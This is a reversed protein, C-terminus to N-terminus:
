LVRGFSQLMLGVYLFGKQFQETGFSENPAHICDEEMGFGVLLPEANSAEALAPIIPVSAGEWMFVTEKSLIQDLVKKAKQIVPSSSRLSLAGAGHESCTFTLRIGDPVRDKIHKEILKQCREPDQGAVLRCSLKAVAYAPIITKGGPGGYGSHVGNIEITPRFGRREFFSKGQEGGSASVGVQQEYLSLDFPASEALRLDAQDYPKISDCYGEVAISGDPKHLSALLKSIASAPNPVVGGHVGSHLDYKPGDVRIEISMIGRLGMTITAFDASLTGTDCVMLVDAKIQKAISSLTATIGKSGCEEEGEILIKINPLEAGNNILTELAKLFYFVQGKNDEAGRAYMRNNRITPEFPPTTWSDIPDVPQVDYHGYFLITQTNLAAQTNLATQTNSSKSKLEAYVMPKSPTAILEAVCGLKQLHKCLWQACAVCDQEYSPDTSISKFRLFDKWEQYIRSEEKAFLEKLETKNLAM